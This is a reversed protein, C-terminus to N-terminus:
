KDLKGRSDLARNKNGDKSDPTEGALQAEKRVPKMRESKPKLFRRKLEELEMQTATLQEKLEALEATAACQHADMPLPRPSVSRPLDCSPCSTSGQPSWTSM